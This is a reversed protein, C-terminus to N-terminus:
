ACMYRKFRKIRSEKGCKTLPDYTMKLTRDIHLFVHVCGVWKEFNCDVLMKSKLQSLLLWLARAHQFQCSQRAQLTLLSFLLHM